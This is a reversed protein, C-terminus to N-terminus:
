VRRTPSLMCAGHAAHQAGFLGQHHLKRLSPHHSAHLKRTNANRSPIMFSPLPAMPIRWHRKLSTEKATVNHAPSRQNEGSAKEPLTQVGLSDSVGRWRGATCVWQAYAKMYKPIPRLNRSSSHVSSDVILKLSCSAPQLRNCSHLRCLKTKSKAFCCTVEFLTSSSLTPEQM